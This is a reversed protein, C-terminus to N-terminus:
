KSNLMKIGKKPDVTIQIKLPLTLFPKATRKLTEERTKVQRSIGGMSFPVIMSVLIGTNLEPSNVKDKIPSPAPKIKARSKENSPV